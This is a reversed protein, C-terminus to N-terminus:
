CVVVNTHVSSNGYETFAICFVDYDVGNCFCGINGLSFYIVLLYALYFLASICRSFCLIWKIDM